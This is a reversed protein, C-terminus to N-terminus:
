LIGLTIILNATNLNSHDEYYLSNYLYSNEESSFTEGVENSFTNDPLYTQNFGSGADFTNGFTTDYNSGEFEEDDIFYSSDDSPAAQGVNFIYRHNDNGFPYYYQSFGSGVDFLNYNPATLDLDSIFGENVFGSINNPSPAAQGVNESYPILNTADLNSNFGNVELNSNVVAAQGVSNLYSNEATYIQTFNSGIDNIISNTNDLQSTNIGQTPQISPATVVDAFNQLAPSKLTTSTLLDILAM